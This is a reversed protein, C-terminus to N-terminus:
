EDLAAGSWARRLLAALAPRTPQRPGDVPRALAIDAAHEIAEAPLGLSQLSLPAGLDEAMRRLGVALSEGDFLQRLPSLTETCPENFAAVYPLLVTHTPAHPLAFTGGLVHCLRHHLGMGVQALAEGCLWAGHMCHTIADLGAASPHRRLGRLMHEIGASAISTTLPNAHSSYLAEVAHAIANMGSCILELPALSQFLSPDYAVVRALVKPDVITQKVGDITLGFNFTVESGSLTTPIAIIPVPREHAVAKATDLASGGGFAVLCDASTRTALQEAARAVRDPVHPLTETFADIYPLAKGSRIFARQLVAAGRESSILLPAAVGLATLEEGLVETISEGFRIRHERPHVSFRVTAAKLIPEQERDSRVPEPTARSRAPRHTV